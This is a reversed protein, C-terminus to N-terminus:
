PHPQPRHQNEHVYLEKTAKAVGELIAQAIQICPLCIVKEDYDGVSIAIYVYNTCCDCRVHSWGKNGLAVAIKDPDGKAEVIANYIDECSQGSALKKSGWPSYQREWTEAAGASREAATVVHLNMAAGDGRTDEGDGGPM